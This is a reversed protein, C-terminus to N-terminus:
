FQFLFRYFMASPIKFHCLYTFFMRHENIPLSLIKLIDMSGLTIQLTLLIRILIGIFGLYGFCDQSLSVFSSPEYKRVEYCIVTILVTYYWCLAPCLGFSFFLSGLFLDKSIHDFSPHWTLPSLIIGEGFLLPFM